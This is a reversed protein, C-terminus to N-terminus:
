TALKESLTADKKLWGSGDPKDVYTRGYCSKAAFDRYQGEIRSADTSNPPPFGARWYHEAFAAACQWQQRGNDSRTSALNTQQHMQSPEKSSPTDGCCDVVRAWSSGEVLAALWEVLRVGDATVSYFSNGPTTCHASGDAIFYGSNPALTSPAIARM